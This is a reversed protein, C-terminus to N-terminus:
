SQTALNPQFNQSFGNETYQEICNCVCVCVCTGLLFCLYDKQSSKDTKNTVLYPLKPVKNISFM